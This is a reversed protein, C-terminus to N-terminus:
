IQVSGGTIMYEIPYTQGRSHPRINDIREEQQTLLPFRQRMLRAAADTANTTAADTTLRAADTQAYTTGIPVVLAVSGLLIAMLTYIKYDM